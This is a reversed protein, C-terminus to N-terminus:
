KIRVDLPERATIANALAPDDVPPLSPSEPAVPKTADFRLWCFVAVVYAAGFIAINLIWGQNKALDYAETGPRLEGTHWDLIV